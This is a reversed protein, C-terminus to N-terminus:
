PEKEYRTQIGASATPQGQLWVWGDGTRASSRFAEGLYNLVDTALLTHEEHDQLALDAALGHLYVAAEVARGPEEPYQALLAGIIGALVDGSGGKAMAPNGSTNVAVRGDPHAIVTRAGKLVVIVGARRAFSQAVELRSAQVEAVSTQVLRAMEGPHPTLVVTRGPRVIEGRALLVPRQALMNLADADIVVPIRTEALLTQAFKATEPAMGMGPGIVLVTKRSVLQTLREIAANEGGISGDPSALLPQTMLEPAAAAVLSLAPLPVAATVLGAGARLAALSAM